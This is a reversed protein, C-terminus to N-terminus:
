EPVDCSGAGVRGTVGGQDRPPQPARCPARRQPPHGGHGSHARGSRDASRDQLQNLRLNVGDCLRKAKRDLLGHLTRVWGPMAGAAANDQQESRMPELMKHTKERPAADEDAATDKSEAHCEQSRDEGEEVASSLEQDFNRTVRMSGLDTNQRKWLTQIAAPHAGPSAEDLGGQRRHTRIAGAGSGGNSDHEYVNWGDLEFRRMAPPAPPPTKTTGAVGGAVVVSHAM